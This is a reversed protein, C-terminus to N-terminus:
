APFSADTAVACHNDCNSALKMYGGLGWGNDGWSNKIIYYDGEGDDDNGYGVALMAHNLDNVDNKCAPEYYVGTKYSIFSKHSADVGVAIPGNESIEVILSTEDGAPLITYTNFSVGSNKGEDYRCEHTLNDNQQEYPYSDETEIGENRIVYSYAQYEFGGNCRDNGDETSCDIINQESLSLLEGTQLFHAGEMAGTAAFAYCSGCDGQDKIGTVAGKERWDLSDPITVNGRKIYPKPKM